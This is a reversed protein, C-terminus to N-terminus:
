HNYDYPERKYWKDIKPLAMLDEISTDYIVERIAVFYAWWANSKSMSGDRRKGDGLYHVSIRAATDNHAEVGVRFPNNAGRGTNRSLFLDLTGAPNV